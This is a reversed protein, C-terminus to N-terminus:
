GGATPLTRPEPSRRTADRIEGILAEIVDELMVVGRVPAATAETTVSADPAQTGAGSDVAGLDIAGQDVAVAV